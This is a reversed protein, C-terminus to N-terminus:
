NWLVFRVLPKLPARFICIRHVSFANFPTVCSYFDLAARAFAARSLTDIGPRWVAEPYAGGNGGGSRGGVWSFGGGPAARGREHM